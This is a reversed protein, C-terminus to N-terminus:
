YILARVWRVGKGDVYDGRAAAISSFLSFRKDGRPRQLSNKGSSSSPPYSVPTNDLTKKEKVTFDPVPAPKDAM